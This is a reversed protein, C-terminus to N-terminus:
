ESYRTLPYVAGVYKWEGAIKRVLWMTQHGNQVRVKKLTDNRAWSITSIAVGENGKVDIHNIEYKQVMNLATDALATKMGVFDAALFAEKRQEHTWAGITTQLFNPQNNRYPVNYGVFDEAYCSLVQAGDGNRFGEQERQFLMRIAQHDESEQAISISPQLSGIGLCSNLFILSLLWFVQRM